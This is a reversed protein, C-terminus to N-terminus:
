SPPSRPGTGTSSSPEPAHIGYSRSSGAARSLPWARHFSLVADQPFTSKTVDDGLPEPSRTAGSVLGGPRLPALDLRHGISVRRRWRDDSCERGDQCGEQPLLPKAAEDVPLFRNGEESIGHTGVGM